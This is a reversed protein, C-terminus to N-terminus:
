KSDFVCSFPRGQARLASQNIGERSPAPPFSTWPVATADVIQFKHLYKFRGKKKIPEILFENTYGFIMIM